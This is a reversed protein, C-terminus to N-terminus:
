VPAEHAALLRDMGVKLAVMHTTNDLILDLCTDDSPLKGAYMVVPTSPSRLKVVLALEEGTMGHMSNDTLVIDHIVPQFVAMAEEASRVSDVVYGSVTLFWKLAIRYDDRDSVLLITKPPAPAPEQGVTPIDEGRRKM